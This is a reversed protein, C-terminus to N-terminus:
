RKASGLLAKGGDVLFLAGIIYMAWEDFPSPLPHVTWGWHPFASVWNLAAWHIGLPVVFFLQFWWTRGVLLDAQRDIWRKTVDAKVREKEVGDDLGRDITGLISDLSGGTFFSGLGKAIKFAWSGAAILWGLTM